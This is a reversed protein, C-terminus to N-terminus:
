SRDGNLIDQNSRAVALHEAVANWNILKFFSDVYKSRDNQYTLYYAHEWVDLALIPLCGPIFNKQHNQLSMVRLMQSMPDWVLMAWGSGEVKEAGAKFESTMQLLGGFDEEIQELLASPVEPQQDEPIMCQWFLCHNFHGAGNFALKQHISPVASYDGDRRAKELAKEADNLGDVYSKQHKTHHLRMTAEDILPEL